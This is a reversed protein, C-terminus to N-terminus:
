EVTTTTTASYTSSVTRSTYTTKGKIPSQAIRESFSLAGPTELGAKNDLYTTM